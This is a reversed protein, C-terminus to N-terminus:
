DNSVFNICFAASILIRAMAFDHSWGNPKAYGDNESHSEIPGLGNNDQSINVPRKSALPEIRRISHM